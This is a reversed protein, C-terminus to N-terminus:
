QSTRWKPVDVWRPRKSAAGCPLMLMSGFAPVPWTESLRSVVDTDLPTAASSV